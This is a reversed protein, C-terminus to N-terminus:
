VHMTLMLSVCELSVRLIIICLITAKCIRQPILKLCFVKVKIKLHGKFFSRFHPVLIQSVLIQNCCKAYKIGISCSM